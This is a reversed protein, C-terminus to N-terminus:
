GAQFRWLGPLDTEVREIGATALRADLDDFAGRRTGNFWRGENWLFVEFGEEVVSTVVGALRSPSPSRLAVHTDDGEDVPEDVLYPASLTARRPWLLKDSRGTIVVAEKPVVQLALARRGRDAPIQERIDFPGQSGEAIVRMGGVVAAAAVVGAVLPRWRALAVVGGAAVVCLLAAVPAVYRMLSGNVLFGNVGSLPRAGSFVLFPVGGLLCARGLVAISSSPGRRGSRFGVAALGLLLLVEWRLVYTRLHDVLLGPRLTFLGGTNEGISEDLFDVGVSYGDTLPSGYVLANFALVPLLVLGAAGVLAALRPASGGDRRRSFALAIGAALLVTAYHTGVALGLLAGALADSGLGPRGGDAGVVRRRRGVLVLVGAVLLAATTAGTEVLGSAASWFPTTVGLLAAALVGARWSGLVQRGLLGTLLLLAVASVTTTLAPVWPAVALLGTTLAVAYAFDKPVVEGDLLGADRPTLAPAVDAPLRDYLALPYTPVGTDLWRQALQYRVSEHPSNFLPDDSTRDPYSALHVVAFAGLLLAVVVSPLVTVSRRRATPRGAPDAPGVEAPPRESTDDASTTAPM